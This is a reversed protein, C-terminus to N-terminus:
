QDIFLAEENVKTFREITTGEQLDGAHSRWQQSTNRADFHESPNDTTPAHQKRNTCPHRTFEM